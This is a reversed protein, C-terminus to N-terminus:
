LMTPNRASGYTEEMWSHRQKQFLETYTLLQELGPSPAYVDCVEGQLSPGCIASISVFLTGHKLGFQKKVNLGQTPVVSVVGLKNDDWKNDRDWVEFRIPRYRPLHFM